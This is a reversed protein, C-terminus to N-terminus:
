EHMSGKPGMDAQQRARRLQREAWRKLVRARRAGTRPDRIVEEVRGLLADVNERPEDPADRAGSWLDIWEDSREGLRLVLRFYRPTQRRSLLFDLMAASLALPGLAIDRLADLLLKLQLLLVDRILSRPPRAQDPNM